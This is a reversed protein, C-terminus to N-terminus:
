RIRNLFLRGFTRVFASSIGSVFPVLIVSTFYQLYPHHLLNLTWYKLKAFQVFILGILCAKKKGLVTINHICCPQCTESIQLEQSESETKDMSVGETEVPSSLSSIGHNSTASSWSKAEEELVSFPTNNHNGTEQFSENINM